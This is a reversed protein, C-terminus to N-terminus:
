YLFYIGNVHLPATTLRVIRCDKTLGSGGSSGHHHWYRTMEVPCTTLNTGGENGQCIHHNSGVSCINRETIQKGPLISQCVSNSIGNQISAKLTTEMLEGTSNSKWGSITLDAGALHEPVDRPLCVIGTYQFKSMVAAESLKLLTFDFSSGRITNYRPHQIIAQVHVIQEGDGKVNYDHEGVSVAFSSISRGSVCHASTLVYSPSILSGSCFPVPNKRDEILAVQFPITHPKM